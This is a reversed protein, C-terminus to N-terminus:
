FWEKKPLNTDDGAGVAMSAVFNNQRVRCFFYHGFGGSINKNEDENLEQLLLSAAIKFPRTYYYSERKRCYAIPM